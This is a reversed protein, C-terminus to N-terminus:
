VRSPVSRKLRRIQARQYFVLAILLLTFIPWLICFVWVNIANYSVGLKAATSLLLDVCWDFVGDVWSGSEKPPMATVTLLSLFLLM